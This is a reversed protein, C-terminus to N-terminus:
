FLMSLSGCVGKLLLLGDIIILYYLISRRKIMSYAIYFLALFPIINLIIKIASFDKLQAVVIFSGLGVICLPLLICFITKRLGYRVVFTKLEHNYDSAYDKIDFMIALTIVFMMNKIFLLIITNSFVILQNFEMSNFVFPFITTVGAWTFGIIIPKLWGIKRINHKGIGNASLGYYLAAALAFPILYILNFFFILHTLHQKYFLYYAYYLLLFICLVIYTYQLYLITKAYKTYWSIRPNVSEPNNIRIYANTYYVITSLFLLVYFTPHLLNIGQQFSSELLLALVCVGYFYNGFFINKVISKL